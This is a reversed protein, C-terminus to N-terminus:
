LQGEKILWQKVTEKLDEEKLGLLENASTEPTLGKKAGDAYNWATVLPVFASYDGKALKDEGLKQLDASAVKTPTYSTGKLEEITKIIENLSVNFSAVSLYKNATQEPHKLVSAVAKGVFHVNSAQFKENGSDVVRVTKKDFDIGVINKLGQPVTLWVTSFVKKDRAENTGHHM